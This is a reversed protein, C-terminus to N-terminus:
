ESASFAYVEGAEAQWEYVYYNKEDVVNLDSDDIFIPKAPNITVMLPNDNATKVRKAGEMTLPWESRLQCDGTLNAKIKGSEIKGESWVLGVEFGGRAKLGSVSGQPWAAPLAPLVHIAGTHSQMLMEAVGATFGFNGDIQFPPHADFLNGYLGPRDWKEGAVDATKILNNMIKLAHDGDLLRAWLNIKWGMSWGTAEDGRKILSQKCAEFLEPTDWRNIQNGPHLGYLHSVHRHHPDKEQYPKDWELLTGDSGIKLPRLQAITNDLKKIFSNTPDLLKLSERCRVLIERTLTIDMATGNTLSVEKGTTSYFQNEPSTGMAPELYGGGNRELMGMVFQAVGKIEQLYSKLFAKDGTYYYHEFVHSMLWAGGMTWNAWMPDGAVPGTHAWLDSNHHAVWGDLGYNQEATKEGNKALDHIFSLLPATTETMNTVEAPWYNMETNINITYNSRWPPYIYKSWIGQLHAPQGGERSSSLLLYRGYNFLLEVMTQDQSQAFADIREDTDQVSLSDSQAIDLQVRDYIRRYDAVHVANLEDFSFVSAGDMDEKALQAPDVGDYGPSKFRGNFSTGCSLLLLAEDAGELQVSHDTFSLVGGKHIVKLWVEAEMGERDWSSDNWAKCRIKLIEDEVFVRNLVISSLVAEFSIGGEKESKLEYAIVDHPFSAIARSTMLSGDKMYAQSYLANQIDLSRQYGTVKDKAYHIVLDALPQYPETEKGQMYRILSDALDHEGQKLAQKVQPFYQKAEPNNWDSPGGRWFTDHNLKITDSWPSGYIMAGFSGNGIPLADTWKDAPKSYHLVHSLKDTLKTDEECSFACFIALVALLLLNTIKM